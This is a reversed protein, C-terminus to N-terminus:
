FIPPGHFTSLFPHPLQSAPYNPINYSPFPHHWSFRRPLMLDSYPAYAKYIDPELIHKFRRCTNAFAVLSKLRDTQTWKECREKCLSWVDLSVLDDAIFQIIETPIFQFGLYMISIYALPPKDENLCCHNPYSQKM